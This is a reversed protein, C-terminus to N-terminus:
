PASAAPMRKPAPYGIVGHDLTMSIRRASNGLYPPIKTWASSSSAAMAIAQPADYEPCRDSVPVEPGPSERLVSASPQATMASIGITMM